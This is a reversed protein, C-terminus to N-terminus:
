PVVVTSLGLEDCVTKSYQIEHELNDSPTMKTREVEACIYNHLGGAFLWSSLHINAIRGWTFAYMNIEGNEKNSLDVEISEPVIWHTPWNTLYGSDRKSFSVTDTFANHNVLFVAVSAVKETTRNIWKQIQDCFDYSCDEHYDDDTITKCGLINKMYEVETSTITVGAVNNNLWSDEPKVDVVANTYAKLVVLFLFDVVPIESSNNLIYEQSFTTTPKYDEVLYDLSRKKNLDVIYGTSKITAVGKHHIDIIFRGYQDWQYKAFLYAVAAPGCLSTRRQSVGEPFLCRKVIDKALCVFNIHRFRYHIWFLAKMNLPFSFGKYNYNLEVILFKGLFEPDDVSFQIENGTGKKILKVNSDESLYLSWEISKDSVSTNEEKNLIYFTYSKGYILGELNNYTDDKTYIGSDLAEKTRISFLCHNNKATYTALISELWDEKIKSIDECVGRESDSSAQELCDNLNFDSFIEKLRNLEFENM